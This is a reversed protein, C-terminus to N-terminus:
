APVQRVSSQLPVSRPRRQKGVGRHTLRLASHVSVLDKVLPTLGRL